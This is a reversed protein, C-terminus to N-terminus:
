NAAGVHAWTRGKRINSILMASVGYRGALVNGTETSAKIAAVQEATLKSRPHAEGKASTHPLDQAPGVDGDRRQWRRYHKACLGRSVSTEGCGGVSCIPSTAYRPPLDAVFRAAARRDVVVVPPVPCPRTLYDLVLAEGSEAMLGEHAGIRVNCKHCLLGRVHGDSHDHDVNFHGAQWKGDKGTRGGDTAPCLACKGGQAILLDDYQAVTLGYLNKLNHKRSQEATKPNTANQKASNATARARYDANSAYYARVRASECPKCRARREGTVKNTVSFDTIPLELHCVRCVKLGEPM